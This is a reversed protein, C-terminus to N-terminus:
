PVYKKCPTESIRKNKKINYYRFYDLCPDNLSYNRTKSAAVWDDNLTSQMVREAREAVEPDAYWDTYTYKLNM